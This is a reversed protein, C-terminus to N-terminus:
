IAVEAGAGEKGKSKNTVAQGDVDRDEKTFSPFLNPGTVFPKSIEGVPDFSERDCDKGGHWHDGTGSGHKDAPLYRWHLDRGYSASDCGPDSDCLRVSRPLNRTGAIGNFIGDFSTEL